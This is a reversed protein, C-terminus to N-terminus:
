IGSAQKVVADEGPDYQGSVPAFRGDAERRLYLLYRIGQKPDFEVLSPGNIVVKDKMKDWDLRYHHLVLKKLDKDGKVVLIIEFESSLGALPYGNPLPNAQEPAEKTSHPKAIVVLDAKDSLQQRSWVSIIRAEVLMTAALILLGLIVKKM